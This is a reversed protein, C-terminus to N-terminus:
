QLALMKLKLMNELESYRQLWLLNDMYCGIFVLDYAVAMLPINLLWARIVKYFIDLKPNPKIRLYSYEM